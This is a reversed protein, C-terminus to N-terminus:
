LWLYFLGLVAALSFAVVFGSYPLMVAFVGALLLAAAAKGICLVMETSVVTSIAYRRKALEYVKYFQAMNVGAFSMRGLTDTLLVAVPSGAIPRFLYSIMLFPLHARMVLRQPVREVMEGVLFTVAAMVIVGVAVILGLESTSGLVIFMFLPWFVMDVLNEGMGLMTMTISRQRPSWMLQWPRWYSLQKPRYREKTKLLPVVSLLVVLATMLFLVPFGWIAAVFGGVVPGVVGLSFRMVQVWSMETGRNEADGFRAMEIHVAPWYFIKHLTLLVVAVGVLGPYQPVLSLAVFYFIFFPLSAAMSLELGFRGVFMGGLPLLVLYLLYHAAYYLAIFVLSFGEKYFFVPEFITVLAYAFSFILQFWFFEKLEPRLHIRFLGM